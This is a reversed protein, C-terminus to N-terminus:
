KVGVGGVYSKVGAGEGGVCDVATGENAVWVAVM